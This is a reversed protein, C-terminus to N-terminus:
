WCLKGNWPPDNKTDKLLQLVELINADSTTTSNVATKKLQQYVNTKEVIDPTNSSLARIIRTEAVSVMNLHVRQEVSM